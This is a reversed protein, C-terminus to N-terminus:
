ALRYLCSLRTLYFSIIGGRSVDDGCFVGCEISILLSRNLSLFSKVGELDYVRNNLRKSSMDLVAIRLENTDQSYSYTTRMSTTTTFSTTTTSSTSYTTSNGFLTQSDPIESFKQRM